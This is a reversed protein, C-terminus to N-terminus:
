RHTPNNHRKRLNLTISNSITETPKCQKKHKDEAPHIPEQTHSPKTQRRRRCFLCCADAGSDVAAVAAKVVTRRRSIIYNCCPM